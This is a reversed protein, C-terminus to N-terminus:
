GSYETYRVKQVPFSAWFFLFALVLTSFSMDISGLTVFAGLLGGTASLAFL